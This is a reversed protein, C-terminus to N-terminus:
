FIAHDHIDKYFYNIKLYYNEDSYTYFEKKNNKKEHETSLIDSFRRGYIKIM